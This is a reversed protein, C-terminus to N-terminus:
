VSPRQTENVLWGAIADLLAEAEGIPPLTDIELAPHRKRIGGLRQPLDHKLHGGMGLFLPAVTVRVYGSAALQAVCEELSPKMVELFALEVALDGRARAVRDRIARFPEAWGPERAGHAFLVLATGTL